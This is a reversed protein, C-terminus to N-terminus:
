RKVSMSADHPWLDRRVGTAARVLEDLVIDATPAAAMEDAVRRAREGYRSDSRITEIAEAIRPVDDQSLPRHRGDADLATDVVVGAGAEAVRQGNVFQDAFVPVIVVPLGAALAGFTTGSGGHCVVVDAAALVDAQDVWPEVHVSAPLQGLQAADFRRGVTVLVRADIAAVAAIATRYADAAISMYGLVTGFSVYVLPADSGGWWDPLSRGADPAPVRFRRTDPFPSRDLSAPLRTVYPSGRLEEVLDARHAELAPAAIDISGWEVDALSIGVQAVAVARDRAIVASAYECPDRLIVDPKWDAVLREMSPLMAATALRGFMERNGLVSAERAPLIALQERIPRIAEEPPEGGAAFPHGTQDVMAALAPPAIVLTEYGRGRAADLFPLLPQLHGAGGLSCAALVRM